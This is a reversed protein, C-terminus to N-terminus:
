LRYPTQRHPPEAAQGGRSPGKRRGPESPIFPAICITYTCIYIYIYIYVCTNTHTHIYM